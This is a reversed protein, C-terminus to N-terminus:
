LGPIPPKLTLHFVPIIHNWVIFNLFFFESIVLVSLVAKGVKHNFLRFFALLGTVFLAAIPILVPFLYRGQALVQRPAWALWILLLQLGFSFFFFLILRSFSPLFIRMHNKKLKFYLSQGFYIMIGLGSIFLLIKFIAYFFAGASYQMWGFRLLFSDAILSFFRGTFENAAASGFAAPIIGWLRKGIADLNNFFPSPLYWAIWALLLVAIWSFFFIRIINHKWNDKNVDLVPIILTLPILAYVSKDTFFGIVAIIVIIIFNRVQFRNLVFLTAVYFFLATILISFGDPNVAISTVALQPLFLILFAGFFLPGQSFFAINSFASFVLLVSGLCFLLSLFRCIYYYTEVDHKVFLGALKGVALHYLEISFTTTSRRSNSGIFDTQSLETPLTGPRGLGNFRWWNNKYMFEIIKKEAADSKEQGFAHTLIIQFHQPEDPNQFPPIAFNLILGTSLFFLCILTKNFSSPM